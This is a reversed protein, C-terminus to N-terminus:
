SADHVLIRTGGPQGRRKEYPTYADTDYRERDRQGCWGHSNPAHCDSCLHKGLAQRQEDDDGM